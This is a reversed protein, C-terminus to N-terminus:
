KGGTRAHDYAQSLQSFSEEALLSMGQSYDELGDRLKRAAICEQAMVYLQHEFATLAWDGGCAHIKKKASSVMQKLKDDSLRM